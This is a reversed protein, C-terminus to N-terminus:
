LVAAVIEEVLHALRRVNHVIMALLFNGLYRGATWARAELWKILHWFLVSALEDPHTVWWWATIAYRPIWYGIIRRADRYIELGFQRVAEAVAAMDGTFDHWADAVDNTITGLVGGIAQVTWDIASSVGSGIDRGISDLFRRLWDFM